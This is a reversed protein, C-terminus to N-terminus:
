PKPGERGRSDPWVRRGKWGRGRRQCKCHQAPLFSQLESFHHWLWYWFWHTGLGVHSLHTRTKSAAPSRRRRRPTGAACRMHVKPTSSANRYEEQPTRICILARDRMYLCFVALQLVNRGKRPEMAALVAERAGFRATPNHELRGDLFRPWTPAAAPVAGGSALLPKVLQRSRLVISAHQLKVAPMAQLLRVERELRWRREEERSLLLLESVRVRQVHQASVLTRGSSCCSCGTSDSIGQRHLQLQHKSAAVKRHRLGHRKRTRLKHGVCCGSGGGSQVHLEM